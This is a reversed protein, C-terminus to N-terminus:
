GSEKKVEHVTPGLKEQETILIPLGIMQAFKTLRVINEIVREKHVIVPVLKDQVDIIALVSEERTILNQRKGSRHVM